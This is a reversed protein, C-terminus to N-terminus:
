AADPVGSVPFAAACRATDRDPPVSAFGWSAAADSTGCFASLPSHRHPIFQQRRQQRQHHRKGQPGVDNGVDAGAGLLAKGVNGHHHVPFGIQFIMFQHDRRRQILRHREPQRAVAAVEILEVCGVDLNGHIQGFDVACALILERVLNGVGAVNGGIRHRHLVPIRRLKGDGHFVPFAASDGHGDHIFTGHRVAIDGVLIVGHQVVVFNHNGSRLRDDVLDGHRFDVDAQLAAGFGEAFAVLDGEAIGASVRHVDLQHGGVHRLDVQVQLNLPDLLHLQREM